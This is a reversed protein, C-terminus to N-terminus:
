AAEMTCSRDLSAAVPEADKAETKTTIHMLEVQVFASVTAMTHLQKMEVILM